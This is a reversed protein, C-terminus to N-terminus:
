INIKDTDNGELPMNGYEKMLGPNERIVIYVIGLFLTLFLILTIISFNEIGSIQEFYHSVLKM